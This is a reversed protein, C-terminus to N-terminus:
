EKSLLNDISELKKNFSFVQKLKIEIAEKAKVTVKGQIGGIIHSVGKDGVVFDEPMSQLVAIDVELATIQMVTQNRLEILCNKKTLQLQKNFNFM